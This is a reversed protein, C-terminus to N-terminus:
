PTEKDGRRPAPKPDAKQEARMAGCSRCTQAAAVWPPLVVYDEWAHEGDRTNPCRDGPMDKM